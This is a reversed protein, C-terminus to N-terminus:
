EEEEQEIEANRMDSETGWSEIFWLYYDVDGLEDLAERGEGALAGAMKRLERILEIYEERIATMRRRIATM